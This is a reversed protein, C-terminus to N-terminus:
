TSIGIGDNLQKVKELLELDSLVPTIGKVEVYLNGVRGTRQDPMGYGPVSMVVGPNTGAPVKIKIENGLLGKVIVEKGVILELVNIVCKTYLHSRDRRFNKDEKVIIKVLLDGRPYQSISNDGLGRFRMTTGHEIGSPLKINAIEEHGSFTRYRGIFDKGTLVEQLTMNVSIQVDKNKVQRRQQGGGFFAGFIDNMNGSNINIQPQPQDYQLRKDPDKLTEYAENIQAFMEGNGGRDPHHTKALNKFATKIDKDSANRDIGLTSYPDM